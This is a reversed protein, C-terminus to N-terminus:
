SREGPGELSPNGAQPLWLEFCAGPEGPRPRYDLDGGHGRAIRRAIVLGLGSGGGASRFPVFLSPVVEPPVGPGEDAVSVWQKGGESRFEVRPGQDAKGHRVANELVNRFLEVLLTANGRATGPSGSTRVEFDPLGLHVRVQDEAERLVELLSLRERPEPVHGARAVQLHTELVQAARRLAEDARGLTRRRAAPDSAEEGAQDLHLALEHLPARVQHAVAAAFRQLEENQEEVELTLRRLRLQVRIRALLEATDFPKTIYDDAGLDLGQLKEGMQSRATLLIVALRATDERARLERLVSLGDPPPMMVDLLVLAIDPEGVRRLATEGDAAEEVAFGALELQERLMLRLRPDDDVILLRDV